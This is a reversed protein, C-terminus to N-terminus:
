RMSARLPEPHQLPAHTPRSVTLRRRLAEVEFRQRPPCACRLESRQSPKAIEPALIRAPDSRDTM